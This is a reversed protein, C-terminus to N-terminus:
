IKAQVGSAWATKIAALKKQQIIGHEFFFM